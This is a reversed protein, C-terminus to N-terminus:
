STLSWAGSVPVIRKDQVGYNIAIMVSERKGSGPHGTTSVDTVVKVWVIVCSLCNSNGPEFM